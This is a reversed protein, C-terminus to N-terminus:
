ADLGGRGSAVKYFLAGISNSTRGRMRESLLFGVTARFEPLKKWNTLTDESVGVLASFEEQTQTTREASPLAFWEVFQIYEDLQGVDEPLAFVDSYNPASSEISPLLATTMISNTAMCFIANVILARM